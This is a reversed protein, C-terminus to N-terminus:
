SPEEEGAALLYERVPRLGERALLSRDLLARLLAAQLNELHAIEEGGADAVVGGLFRELFGFDLNAAIGSALAIQHKLHAALALSPIVIPIPELLSIGEPRLNQILADALRETRNSYFLRIM